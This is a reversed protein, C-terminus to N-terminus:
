AIMRMTVPYRFYEGRHAAMAGMIMGVIGLVYVAPLLVVGVGCGVLVASAFFYIVLSIQFNMAEKGHDDIFPSDAKRILWMILAPIVPILLHALLLSLHLFVTYTREGSDAEADVFRNMTAGAPFPPSYAEM